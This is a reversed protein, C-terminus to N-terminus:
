YGSNQVRKTRNTRTPDDDTVEESNQVYDLVKDTFELNDTRFYEFDDARSIYDYVTGTTNVQPDKIIVKGNEVEWIVAHASNLGDWAVSFYGRSGEGYNLIDQEIKATIETDSYNYNHKNLVGVGPGALRDVARDILSVDLIDSMSRSEANKFVEMSDEATLGSTPKGTKKDIYLAPKAEVDYGRQRLEYAMTCYACNYAYEDGTGYKPNSDRLDEADTTNTNTKRLVGFLKDALRSAKEAAKAAARKAREYSQRANTKTENIVNAFTKPAVTSRTTKLTSTSDYSKGKTPKPLEPKAPKAGIKALVSNVASKGSSLIKDFTTAPKTGKAKTKPTIPKNDPKPKTPSVYKVQYPMATPRGNKSETKVKTPQLNTPKSVKSNKSAKYARYEPWTYFYRNKGKGIPVKAIYKPKFKKESAM